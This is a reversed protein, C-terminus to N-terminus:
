LYSQFRRLIEDVTEGIRTLTDAIEWHGGIAIYGFFDPEYELDPNPGAPAVNIRLAEAGLDPSSNILRVSGIFAFEDAHPLCDRYAATPPVRFLMGSPVYFAAQILRHKDRNSLFALMSLEDRGAYSQFAKAEDAAKPDVHKLFRHGSWAAPDDVIPFQIEKTEKHTPEHRLKKLALAWWLHDLVCRFNHIADGALLGWKDSVEPVRNASFVIARDEPDYHRSFGISPHDEGRARGIDALLNGVHAQAWALKTASSTPLLPV